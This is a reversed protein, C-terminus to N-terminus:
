QRCACRGADVLIGSRKEWEDETELLFALGLWACLDMPGFFEMRFSMQSPLMQREACRTKM